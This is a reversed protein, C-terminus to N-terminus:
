GVHSDATPPNPLAFSKLSRRLLMAASGLLKLGGFGMPGRGLRIGGPSYVEKPSPCAIGKGPITGYAVFGTCRSNVRELVHLALGLQLM